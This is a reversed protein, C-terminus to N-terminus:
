LFRWPIEQGSFLENIEKEQIELHDALHMQKPSCLFKMAQEAKEMSDFAGLFENYTEYAVTSLLVYVKM